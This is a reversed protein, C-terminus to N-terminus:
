ISLNSSILSFEIFPSLRLSFLCIICVGEEQLPLYIKKIAKNLYLKCLM